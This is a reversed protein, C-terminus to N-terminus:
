DELVASKTKTPSVVYFHINYGETGISLAENNRCNIVLRGYFLVETTTGNQGCWWGIIDM